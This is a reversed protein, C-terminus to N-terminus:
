MCIDLLHKGPSHDNTVDNTDEELNDFSVVKFQSLLEDGVCAAEETDHTEARKLIDDIDVDMDEEKDDKFLEEAGFKLISALEEKNFPTASSCNCM